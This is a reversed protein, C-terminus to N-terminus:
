NEVPMTCRNTNLDGFGEIQTRIRTGTRTLKFIHYNSFTSIAVNDFQWITIPSCHVFDSLLTAMFCHM